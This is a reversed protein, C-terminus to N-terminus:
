TTLDANSANIMDQTPTKISPYTAVYNAIGIKVRDRIAPLLDYLNEGPCSTAGVDRHSALSYNQFTSVYPASSTKRHYDIMSSPDIKYKAALATSLKILAEIQADTPKDVEFNGILAIGVSPQNNRTAHAGM